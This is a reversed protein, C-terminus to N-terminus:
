GSNQSRSKGLSFPTQFIRQGLDGAFFLGNNKGKSLAALFRLQPVSIDQAEDVVIFDFPSHQHPANFHEALFQFIGSQTIMGADDLRQFVKQFITWLMKRETEPLRTKRGIRVVDRYTEWTNLQWPDVVEQWEKKLFHDTFDHQVQEALSLIINGQETPSIM